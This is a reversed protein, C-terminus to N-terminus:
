AAVEKSALHVVIQDLSPREVVAGSGLLGVEASPVLAEATTPSRRLGHCQIIAPDIGDPGTRVLRYADRLEDTAGSFWVRGEHLFTIQDAVRELDTTIHTSFLVSHRESVLFEGLIGTLEDRAVPDLGSTPEDLVLLRAGHSLAIAVQLKMTMGRSLEGVRASPSLGFRKLLGRYGDHDWSRYFPALAQEVQSLRWQEVLSAQDLVVGIQERLASTTPLPRGLVEVTGCTPTLMGLITRITTTKGAGNPGVLGMIYGEPLELSVELEFAGLQVHVRDLRLAFASM